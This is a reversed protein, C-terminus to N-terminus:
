KKLNEIEQEFTKLEQSTMKLQKVTADLKNIAWIVALMLFFKLALHAIMPSVVLWWDWSIMGNAKLAILVFTLAGFFGDSIFKTM